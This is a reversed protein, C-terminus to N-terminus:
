TMILLELVPRERMSELYKAVRMEITYNLNRDKPLHADYKLFQTVIRWTSYFYEMFNDNYLLPCVIMGEKTFLAHEQFSKAPVIGIRLEEFYQLQSPNIKVSAVVWMDSDTNGVFLDAKWIGTISPPLASRLSKNRFADAMVNIYEKIKISEGYQGTILRSDPTLINMLENSIQLVGAKEFGLLISTTKNGTVGCLSLAYQIREMVLPNNNRIASHVAYEFCVGCAGFDDKYIRALQRLLIDNITGYDKVVEHKLGVLMGFLIPRVMALIIKEQRSYFDVDQVTGLDVQQIVNYFLKM